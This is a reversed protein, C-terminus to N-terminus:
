TPLAAEFLAIAGAAAPTLVDPDHTRWFNDLADRRAPVFALESFESVAELEAPVEAASLDLRVVLDPKLRLLDHVLGLAVLREAVRGPAIQIGLEELLETAVTAAVPDPGGNLELMGSPAVHWSGRDSSVLGRCGIVFARGGVEAGARDDASVRRGAKAREDADASVRRGAKAREGVDAGVRGPVTLIVSIGIAAARGAGSSLPDGALEHALARLPLDALPTGRPSDAFEARLADCTAIMDFYRGETVRVGDQRDDDQIGDRGDDDQGDDQVGDQGDDDRYDAEGGSQWCATPGNTLTPDDALRKALHAAGLRRLVPDPARPSKDVLLRRDARAHEAIVAPYVKGARVLADPYLAPLAEYRRSV